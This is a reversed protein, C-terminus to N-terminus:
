FCIHDKIKRLKGEGIGKVKILDSAEKFNGNKQRFAIIREALVPGIGQLSVLEDAKASNVNICTNNRKEGDHISGSNKSISETGRSEFVTDGELLPVVTTSELVVTEESSTDTTNDAGPKLISTENKALAFQIILVIWVISGMGWLCWWLSTRISKM